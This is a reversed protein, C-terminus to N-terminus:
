SPLIDVPTCLSSLLFSGLCSLPQDRVRTGKEGSVFSGLCNTIKVEGFVREPVSSCQQWIITSAHCLLLIKWDYREDIDELRM